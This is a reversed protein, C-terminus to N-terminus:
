ILSNSNVEYYNMSYHKYMSIIRFPYHKERLFIGYADIYYFKELEFLFLYPKLLKIIEEEKM